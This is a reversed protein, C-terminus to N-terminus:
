WVGGLDCLATLLHLRGKLRRLEAAGDDLGAALEAGALLEDLTASPDGALMAALDEPRRMALRALYPSAGFVPALAEWAGLGGVVERAREAAGPDVM